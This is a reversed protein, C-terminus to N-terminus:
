DNTPSYAIASQWDIVAQQYHQLRSLHAAQLILSQEQARFVDSLAIQGAAYATQMATLNQEVLKALQEQYDTAQTYLQSVNKRQLEATHSLELQSRQLQARFQM